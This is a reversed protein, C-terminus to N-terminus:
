ARVFGADLLGLMAEIEGATVRLSPMFRLTDPQAANILLGRDRCADAVASARPSELQWAALLGRGRAQGGHQRALRELGELLQEGRRRVNALFEPQSVLEFVALAAACVLPNGGYTSGHDGPEFCSARASALTAAIPVGGGLGKGLTLIDPVIQSTEHCFLTGTRGVGTQVEDCALLVDHALSLERLQQLYGAPPLVVGAEGQIPEVLIGAVDPSLHREIAAADGFPVKIFGPVVPPFLTDWGPKGSAAMAALTRGHFANRTTIIQWAGGKHRKGWKRMLKIACENAEAGTSCLQVQHLRSSRVLREALDLLPATYFAPSPTLLRASQASLASALEPPAHGLSNVAWGQIFDLYRQGRDDWLYSGDGRSMVLEPRRAVPMLRHFSPHM